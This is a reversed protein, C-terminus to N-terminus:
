DSRRTAGDPPGCAGIAIDHGPRSDACVRQVEGNNEAVLDTPEGKEDNGGLTRERLSFRGTILLNESCENVAGKAVESAARGARSEGGAVAELDVKNLIRFVEAGDQGLRLM